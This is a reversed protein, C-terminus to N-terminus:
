NKLIAPWNDVWCCDHDYGNLMIIRTRSKDQMRDVYSKVVAPAVVVDDTGVFHRQPINELVDTLDAPNLSGSLPTLKDMRTWLEHDMNAALTVIEVVDQRRAALLAAVVGGGSWGYLEIKGAGIEKKVQNIVANM